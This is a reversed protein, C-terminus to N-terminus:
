YTDCAGFEATFNFMFSSLHPSVEYVIFSETYSSLKIFKNPVLTPDAMVQDHINFVASATEAEFNCIDYMDQATTAEDERRIYGQISITLTRNQERQEVYNTRNSGVIQMELRPYYDDGKMEFAESEGIIINDPNTSITSKAILQAKLWEMMEAPISM